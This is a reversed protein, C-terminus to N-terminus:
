TALRRLGSKYRAINQRYHAAAEAFRDAESPKIQRVARAPAGIIMSYDPFSKGETILACAGVVCNRGLAAGNLITAGMGVLCGDAIDCGHLMAKHGVTCDRGIRLPFGYDTHLVCNEQINTGDGIHIPENDGRITTGFWISVASGVVVSGILNADPAIWSSGDEPISPVRNDLSYLTM